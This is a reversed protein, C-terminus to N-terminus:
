MAARVASSKFELEATRAKPKEPPSKKQLSTAYARIVASRRSTNSTSISRVRDVLPLPTRGNRVNSVGQLVVDIHGCRAMRDPWEATGSPGSGRKEDGDGQRNRREGAGHTSEGLFRRVRLRGAGTDFDVTHLHVVLDGPLAVRQDYQVAGVHVDRRHALDDRLEGLGVAHIREFKLSVAARRVDVSGDRILIKRIIVRRDHVGDAEITGIDE